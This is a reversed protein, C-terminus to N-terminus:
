EYLLGTRQHQVVDKIQGLAPAVVPVGSAMYEFVKLPSFYFAHDLERYPALAVDMSHILEPIRSHEVAGTIKVRNTLGRIACERMLTERQPGDGVILLFLDPYDLTLRALLDPLDEVGHWPRLGGVFGLTLRQGSNSKRTDTKEHFRTVDVGNPITHIRNESVGLSEVFEALVDSVVCVADAATLLHREAETALQGLGTKRYKAQELSLPANLELILPRNIASALSLGATGYLSVREYIFDPPDKEFKRLLNHTLQENYVIRRIEGSLSPAVIGLSQDYGKLSLGVNKVQDNVPIHVTKVSFEEATDWPSKTLSPTVVVVNNGADQLASAMARVHVAAGKTGLLPIGLDSNLYLIKM